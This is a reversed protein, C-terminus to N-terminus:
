LELDIRRRQTDVFPVRPAVACLLEYGVTRRPARSTTSRCARAGCCWRAASAAGRAGRHPRRHDHGDVRPRRHAGEQRVRAGAHREARPASLRRRLRLRRRRDRHARSATYAAGYGVSDNASSSRCRSSRALAADDGAAPRHMEATDYPFPTAGYLMIGPGCSTAASRPTASSAPPIPSRARIRCAAARRTSRRRAAGALGDDEDARAFHTM